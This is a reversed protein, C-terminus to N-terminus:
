IDKVVSWFYKEVANLAILQRRVTVYIQLVIRYIDKKWQTFLEDRSKEISVLKTDNKFSVTNYTWRLKQARDM